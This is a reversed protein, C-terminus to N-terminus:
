LHLETADGEEEEEEEWDGGGSGFPVQALAITGVEDVLALRTKLSATAGVLLPLPLLAPPVAAGGPLADPLAPPRALVMVESAAGLDLAAAAAYNIAHRRAAAVVVFQRAPKRAEELRALTLRLEGRREVGKVLVVADALYKLGVVREALRFRSLSRGDELSTRAANLSSTIRDVWRARKPLKVDLRVPLVPGHLRM